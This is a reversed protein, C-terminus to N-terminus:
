GLDITVFIRVNECQVMLAVKKGAAGVIQQRQTVSEAPTGNIPVIM